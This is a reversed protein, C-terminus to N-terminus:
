ATVPVEAVGAVAAIGAAGAKALEEALLEKKSLKGIMTRPLGSRIEIERPMEIRSVYDGLHAFLDDLTATMNAKLEVFAKPAQGRYDDPVGIVVADAVAPHQYLAEEIVRPYVNFGSSIIVDKIRDVLFYWGDADRYGIDGTKLAGDVYAADTEKPQQWYGLMIQPGRVCIEGHEGVPMLSGDKPSRIEIETGVLNLGISGARIHDDVPTVTVVPSAETLGYGEFLQCKALAEFRRKVEMPLPAGGSICHTISTIDRPRRAVAATLASYLTPVGPFLTPKEADITKILQKVDFRPLLILTAGLRIGLNMVATMAFVHFLPLIGLVRESGPKLIPFCMVIQSVNATLNAHSLMAAKPIGTTGGTYQLVAIDRHPDIPVPVAGGRAVLQKYSLHHRDLPMKALHKRRFLRMLVSTTFPMVGTMPCVVITELPTKGILGSLKPLTLSLNVTVVLRAGSDNLMFELERAVYLPNLNVVVAGVKMVAYYIIVSYPTNPLCLGVRDGKKVGLDQFGRAARDVLADLSRYTWTRGLFSIADHHGFRASADDLLGDLRGVPIQASLGAATGAHGLM